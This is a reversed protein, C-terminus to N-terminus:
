VCASILTEVFRTLLLAVLCAREPRPGKKKSHQATDAADGRFETQCLTLLEVVVIVVENGVSLDSLFLCLFSVIVLLGSKREVM